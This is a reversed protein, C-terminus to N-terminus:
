LEIQQGSYDRPGRLLLDETVRLTVTGTKADIWITNQLRQIDITDDDIKSCGFLAFCLSILIIKNM